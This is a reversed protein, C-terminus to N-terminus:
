KHLASVYTRRYAREADQVTCVDARTEADPIGTVTPARHHARAAAIWRDVNGAGAYAAVASEENGDYRRLLYRRYGRPANGARFPTGNTIALQGRPCSKM